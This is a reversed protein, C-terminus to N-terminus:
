RCLFPRRVGDSLDRVISNVALNRAAVKTNLRHVKTLVIISSDLLYVCWKTFTKEQVDIWQPEKLSM